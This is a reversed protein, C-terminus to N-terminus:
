QLHKAILLELEELEKNTFYDVENDDKDWITGLEVYIEEVVLEKESGFEDAYWTTESYYATAEYDVAYNQGKYQFFCVDEIMETEQEGYFQGNIETIKMTKLKLNITCIYVNNQYPLVKKLKKKLFVM